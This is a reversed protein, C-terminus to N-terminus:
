GFQKLILKRNSCCSTNDDKLTNVDRSYVKPVCNKYFTYINTKFILSFLYISNITIM